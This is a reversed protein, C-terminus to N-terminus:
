NNKLSKCLTMCRASAERLCPTLPFLRNRDVLASRDPSCVPAGFFRAVLLERSLLPLTTTHAFDKKPILQGRPCVCNLAM